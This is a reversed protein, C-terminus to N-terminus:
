KKELQKEWLEKVHQKVEEEVASYEIGLRTLEAKMIELRDWEPPGDIGVGTHWYHRCARCNIFAPLDNVLERTHHAVLWPDDTIDVAPMKFSKAVDAIDWHRRVHTPTLISLDNDDCLFLVPVKYSTAFGMAALVYDEEASADGLVCLSKKGSGLSYGVALPANEGILGHHGFMPIHPDQLRNSGGKGFSCGTPRGLLEDIMKAQDGGFALYAAHDRHQAFIAYNSIVTSMAAFAAEQGISLYIPAYIRGEKYVRAVELDFYRVLCIRRFMELSHEPSFTEALNEIIGFDPSRKM